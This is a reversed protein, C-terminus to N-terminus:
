RSSARKQSITENCFDNEDGNKSTLQLELNSLIEEKKEITRREQELDKEMRHLHENFLLSKYGIKNTEM